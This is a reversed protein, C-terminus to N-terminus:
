GAQPSDEGSAPKRVVAIRTKEVGELYGSLTSEVTFGLSRIEADITLPDASTYEAALLRGGPALFHALIRGVFAARLEQPVYVLETRVYDFRQPPEWDWANGTFLRDAHAPLRARALAVLRESLDLGFPTVRVGRQETWAVVCELLFGNACGIDLFTGSSNVADAVPRRCAM